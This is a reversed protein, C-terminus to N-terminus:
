STELFTHMIKESYKFLQKLSLSLPFFIVGKKLIDPNVWNLRADSRM